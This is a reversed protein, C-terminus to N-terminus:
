FYLSNALQYKFFQKLCFTSEGKQLNHIHYIIKILCSFYSFDVLFKSESVGNGGGLESYLIQDTVLIKILPLVYALIRAIDSSYTDAIGIVNKLALIAPWVNMQFQSPRDFQLGKLEPIIQDPLTLDELHKLPNRKEKGYVLVDLQLTEKGVKGIKGGSGIARMIQSPIAM